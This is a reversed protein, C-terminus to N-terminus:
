RLMERDERKARFRPGPSQLLRYSLRSKHSSSKRTSGVQREDPGEERRDAEEEAVAWVSAERRRPTRERSNIKGREFRRTESQRRLHRWASLRMRRRM